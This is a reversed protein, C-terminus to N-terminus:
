SRRWVRGLPGGAKRLAAMAGLRQGQQLFGNMLDRIPVKLLPNSEVAQMAGHGAVSRQIRQLEKLYQVAVEGVVRFDEVGRSM